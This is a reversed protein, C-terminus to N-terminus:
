KLKADELWQLYEPLGATISTMIIEPTQYNHLSSILSQVKPYDASRGKIMLRLEKSAISRGQWKFYSNVEDVQICAALGKELLKDAISEAIDKRNTATWIICYDSSM